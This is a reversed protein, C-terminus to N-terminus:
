TFGQVWPCIHALPYNDRRRVQAVLVDFVGRLVFCLVMAMNRWVVVLVLIWKLPIMDVVLVNRLAIGVLVKVDLGVILFM